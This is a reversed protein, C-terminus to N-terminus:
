DKPPLKGRIVLDNFTRLVEQFNRLAAAHEEHARKVVLAGDSGPIVGQRQEEFLRRYDAAAATYRAFAEEVRNRWLDELEWRQREGYGSMPMEEIKM